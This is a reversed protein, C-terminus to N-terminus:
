LAKAAQFSVNASNSAARPLPRMLAVALRLPRPSGSATGTAAQGNIVKESRSNSSRPGSVHAHKLSWGVVSVRHDSRRKSTSPIRSTHGGPACDYEAVCGAGVGFCHATISYTRLLYGCPTGSLKVITASAISILWALLRSFPSGFHLTESLTTRSVSLFNPD